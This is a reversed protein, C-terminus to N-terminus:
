SANSRRMRQLPPDGLYALVRLAWTPGVREMVPLAKNCEGCILGRRAGTAHDHDIVLCGSGRMPGPAECIACVGGQSRYLDALEEPSVGHQYLVHINPRATRYARTKVAQEDRHAAHWERNRAKYREPDAARKVRERELIEDRHKDRWRRNRENAALRAAESKPGRTM